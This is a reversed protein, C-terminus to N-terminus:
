DFACGAACLHGRILEAFGNEPWGRREAETCLARHLTNAKRGADCVSRYIRSDLPLVEMADTWITELNELCTRSQELFFELQEDSMQKKM